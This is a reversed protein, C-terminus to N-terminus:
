RQKGNEKEGGRVGGAGMEGSLQPLKSSFTEERLCSLYNSKPPFDAERKKTM